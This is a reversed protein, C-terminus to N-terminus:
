FIEEIYVAHHFDLSTYSFEEDWKGFFVKNGRKEFKAAFQVTGTKKTSKFLNIVEGTSKPDGYCSLTLTLFITIRKM